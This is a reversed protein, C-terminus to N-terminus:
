VKKFIEKHSEICGQQNQEKPDTNIIYTDTIYCISRGDEHLVVVKTNNETM